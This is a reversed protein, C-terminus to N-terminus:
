SLINLLQACSVPVFGLEIVDNQLRPDLSVCKVLTSQTHREVVIEGRHKPPLLATVVDALRPYNNQNQDQALNQAVGQLSSYCGM